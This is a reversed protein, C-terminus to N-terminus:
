KCEFSLTCRYCVYGTDAHYEPFAILVICAERRLWRLLVTGRFQELLCFRVKWTM